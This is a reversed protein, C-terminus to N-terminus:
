RHIFLLAFIHIFTTILSMKGLYPLWIDRIALVNETMIVTYSLPFISLILIFYINRLGDSEGGRYEDRVGDMMGKEM